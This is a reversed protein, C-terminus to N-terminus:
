IEKLKENLRKRNKQRQVWADEYPQGKTIALHKLEKDTMKEIKEKLEKNKRIEEKVANKTNNYGKKILDTIKGM